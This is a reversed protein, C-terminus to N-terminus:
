QVILKKIYYDDYLKTVNRKKLLYVQQYGIKIVKMYKCVM